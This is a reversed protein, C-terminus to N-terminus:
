LTAPRPRKFTTPLVFGNFTHRRQPPGNFSPVYYNSYLECESEEDFYQLYQSSEQQEWFSLHLDVHDWEYSDELQRQYSSELDGESYEEQQHHHPSHPVEPSLYHKETSISSDPTQEAGEIQPIKPMKNRTGTMKISHIAQIKAQRQSPPPTPPPPPIYAEIVNEQLRHAQATRARQLLLWNEMQQINGPQPTEDEDDSESINQEYYAPPIPQWSKQESAILTVPQSRFPIPPHRPQHIPHLRDHTTTYVKPRLTTKDSFPHALKQMHIKQKDMETVLFIERTTHKAPKEALVVTDGQQITPEPLPTQNLQRANLQNQRLQKDDLNLNSSTAQDRSFHIEAASLKDQRRIKTNLLLISKALMTESIEGGQPQLKTIETELERCARDVVANANKNHSDTLEISLGLQMLDRDKVIAQFGTANDVRVTISPALRIPNTLAIIGAKLHQSQESPIFTAATLSSFNDRLILIKQKERRIVDAHFYEGPHAVETCSNHHSMPKPLVAQVKCQYCETYINEIHHQVMIGYFMKDFIARLQTKTPHNETNHINWLLSPLLPTPIIIKDPQATGATPMSPAILCGDKGIKAIACYRRIETLVSGSKKSPQKGTQLHSIATKCATNAMQAAAWAKTNYLSCSSIAGLTAKPNLVSDISMNVFTCISCQHTNCISPNRSQMDGVANLNAKGSVHLVEVPFRNINTIFSNMRASASFKGRKILAVADKVPSSDPAILLHHKSETILDIEAQIGTAFALAEIECPSWNKCNEPLKVSHYRVPKRLGDVIAYLVHGIGPTKQSGDPVLLLQDDPSPLYLEKINDIHNKATRFASALETSWQVKDKSDQSATAQDFPDMITALNPTAILLTKYLGVWSRMDKITVIDEQKTNKLALQRHPSPTLKGGEHWQWGLVDAKQPFIHTKSAALKINAVCLKALIKEYIAAAEEYTEAGMIIDDAIKCCQGAQLEPKLIKTLLEELEESQGLLGQGSRRLFRIGGFPTAIGLWPCDQPDMHNQFFGQHLDFIIICKWRGLSILIDNPKTKVSPINKLHENVPSFNVVLRVDDKTLLHNPKGKARPKRRLFSPCVFQVNVNHDQPVGLVQQHTLDDCVAQHLQKLDHSYSVMRVQDATPRTQGAWNLRCVHPGSAGNYGQSLDKNFVPAFNAHASIITEVAAQPIPTSRSPLIPLSTAVQVHGSQPSLVQTPPSLLTTPRVQLQKIDKGLIVATTGNNAISIAGQNVACLQPQPWNQSASSDAPEVAVVNKDTFPVSLTIVQGPLLTKGSAVKCLHSQPQIPLLMASSTAPVVYKGHVSITNSTFDQQINNTKLFVTGGILQTHLNPVVVAKFHVTWSNRCFVENIEGIAPLKTLGDALISTQRNPTISFHLAKAVDLRIYNITANSDLEIHIPRQDNTFVTLIQSPIPQIFNCRPVQHVDAQKSSHTPLQIRSMQLKSFDATQNYTTGNNQYLETTSVQDDYQVASTDMEEQDYGYTDAVTVISDEAVTSAVANLRPAARSAEIYQRDAASLKPCTPDGTRHSKIVADSQGTLHCLRCYLTTYARAPTAQHTRGPTALQFDRRMNRQNSHLAGRQSYGRGRSSSQQFRMAGLHEEPQSHITGNHPKSEIEALFTPIKVLIDTKFDMLRKAHGILHHYHQKIHNPLRPDILGLVNALIMDEFTPSLQEDRALEANQQWAIVDGTKGLNATVLNRYKNYFGVAPEGQQYSLEFLNFFHIGKQQIDYDERLKNYIWDVSTSHRIIVNYHQLNCAKGVISLFTSLERRRVPLQAAADTGAVARIRNQNTDYPEWTHYTGGPLFVAMREDQGVYVELEHCWVDFLQNSVGKEPLQNPPYIKISPM